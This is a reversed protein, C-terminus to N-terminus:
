PRQIWLPKKIYRRKIKGYLLFGILYSIAMAFIVLVVALITVPILFLRVAKNKFLRLIEIVARIPKSVRM